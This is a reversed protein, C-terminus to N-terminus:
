TTRWACSSLRCTKPPQLAPGPKNSPCNTKSPTTPRKSIGAACICGPLCEPRIKMHNTIFTYEKGTHPCCYRIQRIMVGGTQTAAHEDTLVGANLPDNRDLDLEGYTTIKMLDKSRSLFYVGASQKWRYWQRIDIGACDWVYLVQRGKAAGQRLQEASMRKLAHMDHEAKKRGGQLDAATLHTLGHTRLNLTYFHGVARRKGQIPQDHVGAGHYHGDGAYVDVPNLDELRHLLAQPHSPMARALTTCLEEILQLRRQSKLTEFFHGVQVQLDEPQEMAWDQLFGRGSRQDELSRKIGMRVWQWDSLGPCTRRAACGQLAQEAPRLFHDNLLEKDIPQQM